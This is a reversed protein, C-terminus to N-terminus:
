SVTPTPQPQTMVRGRKVQIARRTFHRPIASLTNGEEAQIDVPQAENEEVMELLVGAEEASVLSVFDLYVNVLTVLAEEVVVQDIKVVKRSISSLVIKMLRTAQEHTHDKYLWDMIPFKVRCETM